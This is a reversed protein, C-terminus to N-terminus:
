SPFDLFFLMKAFFVWSKVRIMVFIDFFMDKGLPLAQARGECKEEGRTGAGWFAFAGGRALFPKREKEM